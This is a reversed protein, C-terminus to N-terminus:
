RLQRPVSGFHSDPRSFTLSVSKIQGKKLQELFQPWSLNMKAALMRWFAQQLHNLAVKKGKPFQLQFNPNQNIVEVRGLLQWATLKRKQWWKKALWVDTLFLALLLIFLGKKLWFNSKM